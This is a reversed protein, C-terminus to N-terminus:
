FETRIAFFVPVVIISILQNIKHSKLNERRRTNLNSGEPIYRRTTENCSISTESTRVANMMQALCYAGRFRRDVGVLSCPAVDWFAKIKLQNIKLFNDRNVRLLM